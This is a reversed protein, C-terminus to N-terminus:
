IVIIFTLPVLINTVINIRRIPLLILYLIQNRCCWQASITELFSKKTFFIFKEMAIFGRHVHSYQWKCLPTALSPMMYIHEVILDSAFIILSDQLCLIHTEFGIETLGYGLKNLLTLETMAKVQHLRIQINKLTWIIQLAFYM